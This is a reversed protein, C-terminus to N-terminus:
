FIPPPLLRLDVAVNPRLSPHWPANARAWAKTAIAHLYDQESCPKGFVLANCLPRDFLEGAVMADAVAAELEEESWSGLTAGDLEVTYRGDALTVRAPVAFGHPVLPVLYYGPAPRTIVRPLAKM